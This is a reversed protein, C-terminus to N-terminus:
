ESVNKLSEVAAHAADIPASIIAHVRDRLAPFDDKRLDKTEIVDHLYVTVTGPRILWSTKKNFEFAGVISVPVIPTGFQLAMRFVGDKFPGVRGNRTRQGEPFVALSVGSDLAARTLRWMRKLDSPRNVDPVPVNGFRKMMWGYVPIKFHSELELGRFFQPVTAYLVFPDFLNVHNTLLFCTRAPDFGPARRVVLRVGALKMVVRCLMRQAGDNRRPDVFIGLLVLFSAVPFFFAASLLWHWTSRAIAWARRVGHQETAAESAATASVPQESEVKM